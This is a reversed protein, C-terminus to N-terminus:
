KEGFGYNESDDTTSKSQEPLVIGALSSILGLVGVLLADYESDSLGFFVAGVSLVSTAVAAWTSPECWTDKDRVRRLVKLVSFIAVLRKSM